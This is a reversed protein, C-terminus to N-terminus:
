PPSATSWLGVSSVWEGSIGELPGPSLVPMELLSTSHDTPRDVPALDRGRGSFDMLMGGKDPHRPAMAARSERGLLIPIPGHPAVSDLTGPTWGCGPSPPPSPPSEQLYPSSNWPCGSLGPTGRSRSSFIGRDCYAGEPQSKPLLPRTRM